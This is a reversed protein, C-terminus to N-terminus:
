KTADKIKWVLNDIWDLLFEKSIDPNDKMDKIEDWENLDNELKSRIGAKTQKVYVDSNIITM